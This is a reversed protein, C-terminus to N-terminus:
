NIPLKVIETLLETLILATFIFNTIYGRQVGVSINYYYTKNSCTGRTNVPNISPNIKSDSITSLQEDQTKKKFM